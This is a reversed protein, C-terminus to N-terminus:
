LVLNQGVSGGRVNFGSAGEGVTSVGPLLQISRLVDSEGMFAPLKLIAKINLNVTSMQINKANPQELEGTVVVEELQDAEVPLEIDLPTNRDLNFTKVTTQYGIYSYQLTFTGTPLTISYFGYENTTAGNGIEKVFVTAGILSEGNSADKIHGSITFKQQALTFGPLLIVFLILLRM